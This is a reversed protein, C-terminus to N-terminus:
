TVFPSFAPKNLLTTKVMREVTPICKLLIFVIKLVFSSNKKKKLVFPSNKEKKKRKKRKKIIEKSPEYNTCVTYCKGATYWTKALLSAEKCKINEILIDKIEFIFYVVIFGIICIVIVIGIYQLM